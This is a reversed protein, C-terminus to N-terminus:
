DGVAFFASMKEQQGKFFPIKFVAELEEDSARFDRKLRQEFLYGKNYSEFYDENEVIFKGVLYPLKDIVEFCSVEKKEIRDYFFELSSWALDMGGSSYGTGHGTIEFRDGLRVRNYKDYTAGSLKLVSLFEAAKNYDELCETQEENSENSSTAAALSELIESLDLPSIVDGTSNLARERECDILYTDPETVGWGSPQYRDYKMTNIWDIFDQDDFFKSHETVFAKMKDDFFREAITFITHCTELEEDCVYPYSAWKIGDSFNLRPKFFLNDLLIYGNSDMIGGISLVYEALKEHVPKEYIMESM